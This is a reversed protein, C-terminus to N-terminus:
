RPPKVPTAMKMELSRIRAQIMAITREKEQWIIANSDKLSRAVGM